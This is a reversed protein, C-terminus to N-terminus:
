DVWHMPKTEQTEAKRERRRILFVGSLALAGVGVGAGIYAATSVPAAGSLPLNTAKLVAQVNVTKNGAEASYVLTSPFTEVTGNVKFSKTSYSASATITFVNLSYQAGNFTVAATGTQAVSLHVGSTTGNSYDFSQTALNSLFPFYNESSNVLRSYIFSQMGGVIHLVLDSYGSKDSSGVSENVMASHVGKPTTISVQYTAFGRTLQAASVSTAIFLAVLALGALRLALPKMHYGRVWEKM